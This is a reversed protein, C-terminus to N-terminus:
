FAPIERNRASIIAMQLPWAPSNLYILVKQPIAIIIRFFVNHFLLGFERIAFIHTALVMKGLSFRTQWEKSNLSKKLRHAQETAGGHPNRSSGRSKAAVLLSKIREMDPLEGVMKSLDEADPRAKSHSDKIDHVDDAHM